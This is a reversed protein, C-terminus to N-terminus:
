VGTFAPGIELTHVGSKHQRLTEKYPTGNYVIEAGLSAIRSQHCCSNWLM